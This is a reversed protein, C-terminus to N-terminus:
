DSEGYDDKMQEFIDKRFKFLPVKYAMKDDLGYGFLLKPLGDLFPTPIKFEDKLYSKYNCAVIGELQVFMHTAVDRHQEYFRELTLWEKYGKDLEINACTMSVTLAYDQYFSTTPVYRFVIDRTRFLYPQMLYEHSRDKGIPDNTWKCPAANCTDCSPIMNYYNLALYPYEGKPLFHDIQPKVETNPNTKTPHLATNIYNRGCYPCVELGVREIHKNKSFLGTNEYLGTVFIMKMTTDFEVKADPTIKEDKALGTDIRNILEKQRQFSGILLVQLLSDTNANSIDAGCIENIFEQLFKSRLSNHAKQFDRVAVKVKEAYAEFHEKEGSSNKTIQYM